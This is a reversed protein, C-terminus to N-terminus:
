CGNCESLLSEACVRRGGKLKRVACTRTQATVMEGGHTMMQLDSGPTVRAMTPLVTAAALALFALVLLCVSVNKM